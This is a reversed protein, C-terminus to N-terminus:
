NWFILIKSGSPYAILDRKGRPTKITILEAETMAFVDVTAETM